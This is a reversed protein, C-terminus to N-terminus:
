TSGRGFRAAAFSSMRAPTQDSRAKSAATMAREFAMEAQSELNSVDGSQTARAIVSQLRLQVGLSFNAGWFSPDPVTAYEMWVGEPEDVYVHSGDQVWIPDMKVERVVTWVSRVHLAVEPFAYGDKFGFKGQVRSASFYENRAFPFRGTELAAEVIFPWQRSLIRFEPSGDQLSTVDDLGQASLAANIITLMSMQTRM